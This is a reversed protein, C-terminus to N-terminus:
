TFNRGNGPLRGMYTSPQMGIFQIQPNCALPFVLHTPIDPVLYAAGLHGQLSRQARRNTHTVVLHAHRQTTDAVLPQGAEGPHQLPERGELFVKLCQCRLGGALWERAAYRLLEELM